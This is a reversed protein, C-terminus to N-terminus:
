KKLARHQIKMEPKKNCGNEDVLDPNVEPSIQIYCTNFSKAYMRGWNKICYKRSYNSDYIRVSVAEGTKDHLSIIGKM